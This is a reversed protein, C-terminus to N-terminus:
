YKYFKNMFVGIGIPLNNNQPQNTARKVKSIMSGSLVMFFNLHCIEKVNRKVEIKL